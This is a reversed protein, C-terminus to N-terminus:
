RFSGDRVTGPRVRAHPLRPLPLAKIPNPADAAHRARTLAKMQQKRSASADVTAAIERRIATRDEIPRRGTTRLRGREARHQWLTIPESLGDRRGVSRWAGTDPDKLYIHSMDRPDYRLDFADLRDRRAILPGLWPDFYDIAFLSVGQPSIKRIASPLFNLLVDMPNDAPGEMVRRKRAWEDIPM